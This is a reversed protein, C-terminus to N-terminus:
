AATSFSSSPPYATVPFDGHHMPSHCIIYHLPTLVSLLGGLDMREEEKAAGPLDEGGGELQAPWSWARAWPLHTHM